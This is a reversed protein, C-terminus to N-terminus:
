KKTLKKILKKDFEQEINKGLEQVKKSYKLYEYTKGDYMLIEQIQLRVDPEFDVAGNPKRKRKLGLDIKGTPKQPKYYIHQPMRAKSFGNVFNRQLAKILSPCENFKVFESYVNTVMVSLLPFGKGLNNLLTYAHMNFEYNTYTNLGEVSTYFMTQFKNFAIHKNKDDSM